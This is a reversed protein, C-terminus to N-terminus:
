RFLSHRLYVWCTVNNLQDGGRHRRESRQMYPRPFLRTVNYICEYHENNRGTRHNWPNFPTDIRLGLCACLDFKTTVHHHRHDFPLCSNADHCSCHPCRYETSSPGKWIKLLTTNKFCLSKKYIKDTSATLTSHSVRGPPCLVRLSVYNNDLHVM